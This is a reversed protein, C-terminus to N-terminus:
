ERVPQELLRDGGDECVVAAVSSSGCCSEVTEEVLQVDSGDPCEPLFLRVGRLIRCREPPSLATWDDLRGALTEASALDARVAAPSPWTHVVAGRYRLVSGDDFRDVEVDARDFGTADVVDRPSPDTRQADDARQWAAAFEDSLRLDQGSATEVVVGADSLLGEIDLGDSARPEHASESPGRYLPDKGFWALLWAPMYRKTLTPTGPVLYGRLWISALSGLLVAGSALLAVAPSFHTAAVGVTGTALVVAIGTNAWTCAWCRNRGTYEPQRLADIM